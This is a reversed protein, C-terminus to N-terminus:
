FLNMYVRYDVFNWYLNFGQMTPQVVESLSQLKFHVIDRVKGRRYLAKINAPLM